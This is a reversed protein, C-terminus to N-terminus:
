GDLLSAAVAAAEAQQGPMVHAYTDLTFGVSAHGLRESVVKINIGAMLLQSAHTHRLDHLRIVPVGAEKVLRRFAQGVSDPQLPEGVDTTFVRDSATATVGVRLYRERQRARHQQLTAVTAADLDLVRRSRRTKPVSAVEVHDVVTVSQNVTLRRRPLDVDSWRLGVLEGRGMGTLAALRFMTENRNGEIARLFTALEDPTWVTMEPASARAATQSPHTSLRVVNKTVLGKREADNFLKNLATHVHHVTSMSLGGGGRRGSRLLHAYLADIDIVRIDQLAMGGLRPLVCRRLDGRYGRLTSPRRGQNALGDLWVDAFEALTLRNPAVFAGTQHAGLFRTLEDKAAQKSRYSRKSQRRRGGENWTTHLVWSPVGSTRTRRYITGSAM